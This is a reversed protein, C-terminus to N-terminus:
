RMQPSSAWILFPQLWVAPNAIIAVVVPSEISPSRGTHMAIGNEKMTTLRHREQGPPKDLMIKARKPPVAAPHGPM